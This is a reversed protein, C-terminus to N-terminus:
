KAAKAAKQKAEWKEQERKLVKLPKYFRLLAMGAIRRRVAEVTVEVFYKREAKLREDELRGLEDDVKSYYRKLDELPKREYEISARVADIEAQAAAQAKDFEQVLSEIEVKARTRRKRLNAEADVHADAAAKLDAQLKEVQAQLAAETKVHTDVIVAAKAAGSSQLGQLEAAALKQSQVLEDQLKALQADLEGSARVRQARQKALEQRLLAVEREANDIRGMKNSMEVELDQQQQRTSGLRRAAVGELARLTAALASLGSEPAAGGGAAAAGAPAAPLASDAARSRAAFLPACSAPPNSRTPRLALPRSQRSAIAYASRASESAPQAAGV